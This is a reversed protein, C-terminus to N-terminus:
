PLEAWIALGSRFVLQRDSLHLIAVNDNIQIESGQTRVPLDEPFFGGTFASFAVARRNTVYVAVHDEIAFDLLDEGAGWAEQKWRAKGTQFGYVADQGQVIVMRPTVTWALIKESPAVRIEVWRKLDASFGLLRISTQVFGTLGKAAMVIVEEGAALRQRTIGEGPTIAFVRGHDTTISVQDTVVEQGMGEGSWM